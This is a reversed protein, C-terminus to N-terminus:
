STLRNGDVRRVAMGVAGQVSAVATEVSARLAPDATGALLPGKALDRALARLLDPDPLQGRTLRAVAADLVGLLERVCEPAGAQRADVSMGNGRM